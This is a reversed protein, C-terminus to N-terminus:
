PAPDALGRAAPGGATSLLLGVAAPGFGAVRVLFVVLLATSGTYALNAAAAYLTLPRLYPDGAIFRLGQVV